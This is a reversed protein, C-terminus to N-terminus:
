ISSLIFHVQIKYQINDEKSTQIEQEDINTYAADPNIIYVKLYMCKHVNLLLIHIIKLYLNM